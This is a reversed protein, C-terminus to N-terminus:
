TYYAGSETSLIAFAARGTLSPKVWMADANPLPTPAVTDSRAVVNGRPDLVILLGFRVNEKQDNLFDRITAFDTTLLAKLDPFSAVLRATLQLAELREAEAAHIREIGRKLEAGTNERVFREAQHNVYILMAMILGILLASSYLLIKWRLPARRM